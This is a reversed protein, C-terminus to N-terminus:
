KLMNDIAGLTVFKLAWYIALVVIIISIGIIFLIISRVVNISFLFIDKTGSTYKEKIELNIKNINKSIKELNSNFNSKKDIIELNNYFTKNYIIKNSFLNAQIIFYSDINQKYKKRLFNIIKLANEDINNNISSFYNKLSLQFCEKNDCEFISEKNIIKNTIQYHDDDELLLNIKKIDNVINDKKNDKKNNDKKNDKKYMDIIKKIFNIKKKKTSNNKNIVFDNIKKYLKKLLEKFYDDTLKENYYINNYIRENLDSLIKDINKDKLIIKMIYDDNFFIKRIENYITTNFVNLYIKKTQNKMYFGDYFMSLINDVSYSTHFTETPYKKIQNLQKIFYNKRSFFEEIHYNFNNKKINIKSSYFIFYRGVGKLGGEQSLFNM